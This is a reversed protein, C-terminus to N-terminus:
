LSFFKNKKIKYADLEGEGRSLRAFFTKFKKEEKLKIADILFM